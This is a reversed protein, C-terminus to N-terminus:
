AELLIERIKKFDEETVGLAKLYKECKIRIDDDENCYTNLINMFRVFLDGNSSRSGWRSVTTIEYDLCLDEYSMGCIACLMFILIGTRDAGGWCHIYFPYNNKDTLMKFIQRYQEKSDEIRDYAYVPKLVYNVLDGLASKEIKDVAEIRLDLDTKIGADELLTRKGNETIEYHFEMECGRYVLGQKIKRGYQTNWGGIDRINSLGEANIWRPPKDDTFFIGTQSTYLVKDNEKILVKWYYTRGIYLNYVDLENSSAEYERAKSFDKNESLLVCVTKGDCLGPTIEWKFKIPEGFAHDEGSAVINLFDFSEGKKKNGGNEFFKKHLESLQSVQQNNVPLLLKINM